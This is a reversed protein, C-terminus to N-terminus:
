YPTVAKKLSQEKSLCCDLGMGVNLKGVHYAGEKVHWPQLSGGQQGDKASAGVDWVLVNKKLLLCCDNCCMINYMINGNM